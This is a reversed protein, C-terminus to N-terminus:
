RRHTVNNRLYMPEVEEPQIFGADGKTMKMKNLIVSAEPYAAEASIGLEEIDNRLDVHVIGSGAGGEIDSLNAILEGASSLRYDSLRKMSEESANEYIAWYFEGMRADICTIYKKGVRAAPLLSAALNDLSNMPFIPCGIGLALGQAAAIGVRVGTFSGPGIGCGIANFDSLEAGVKDMGEQIMEFLRTQHNQPTLESASFFRGQFDLAISCQETSTDLSLYNAM